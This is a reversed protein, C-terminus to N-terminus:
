YRRPLNQGHAAIIDRARGRLGRHLSMVANRIMQPDLEDWATQIKQRLEVLNTAVPHAKVKREVEPWVFYDMVAAEPTYPSFDFARLYHPHPHRLAPPLHRDALIHRAKMSWVRGDFAQGLFGIVAPTTHSRHGDHQWRLQGWQPHNQQLWPVAEQQLWDLYVVQNFNVDLFKLPLKLGTATVAGIVNLSPSHAPIPAEFGVTGGSGRVNWDLHNKRNLIGFQCFTKEDEFVLNRFFADARNVIRRCMTLRLERTREPNAGEWPRKREVYGHLRKGGILPHYCKRKRARGYTSPSMAIEKRKQTSRPARNPMTGERICNLHVAEVVEDTLVRPASGHDRPAISGTAEFRRVHDHVTRRDPAEALPFVVVWAQLVAKVARMPLLDYGNTYANKVMWIRQETTLPEQRRGRGHPQAVAQAVAQAM